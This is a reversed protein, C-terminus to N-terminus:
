ADKSGFTVSPMVNNPPATRIRVVYYPGANGTTTGAEFGVNATVNYAVLTTDPTLNRDYTYYINPTHSVTPYVTLVHVV